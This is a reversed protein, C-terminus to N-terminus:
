ERSTAKRKVQLFERLVLAHNHEEDRAGFVLLVRRRAAIKLLKEVAEPRSRLEQRYRKKFETWHEARHGFWKRLETSPALDKEWQDIPLDEKKLGRPWLRDVLVRYGRDDKSIEYARVIAIEPLKKTTM